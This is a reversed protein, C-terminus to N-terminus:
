QTENLKKIYEFSITGESHLLSLEAMCNRCIKMLHCPDVICHINIHSVEPHTFSSKLNSPDLCSGLNEYTKLNTSTGDSTLSRIIIGGEYLASIVALVLQSQVTANIKNIFFFVVPCKFKKSLSSIIFVLSEKALEETHAIGGLDCYGYVKGSQDQWFGGKISM